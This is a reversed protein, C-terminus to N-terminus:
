LQISCGLATRTSHQLTHVAQIQAQDVRAQPKRDSLGADPYELEMRALAICCGMRPQPWGMLSGAIFVARV